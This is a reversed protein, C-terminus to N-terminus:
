EKEKLQKRLIKNDSKRWGKLLAIEKDILAVFPMFKNVDVNITDIIFQFEQLLIECQCIALTQYHRREKCALENTVDLYISNAKTIYFMMDRLILLVNERYYTILWEPYEDVISRNMHYKTTLREWEIKDDDSMKISNAYVKPNRIKDKIGFDRLLFAVVLKRIKIANHFFEM